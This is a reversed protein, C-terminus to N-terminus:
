LPDHSDRSRPTYELAKMPKKEDDHSRPDCFNASQHVISLGSIRSLQM